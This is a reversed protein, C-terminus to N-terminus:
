KKLEKQCDRCIRKKFLRQSFDSEAQSMIGDCKSCLIVDGVKNPTNVVSSVPPIKLPLIDKGTEDKFEAKGYVDSAIGLMSACKKMADTTAGKLDNGFDMQKGQTMKIDARGFQCKTITEGKPSKVTLKGQVWVQNGEKGHAIVEFDWNWGFVFNLAKIIYHGTVYSFKGSGKGPRTYIFKEPTKGLLQILQASKIWTPTLAMKNGGATLPELLDKETPVLEQPQVRIVLEQSVKKPSSKKVVKKKSKKKNKKM